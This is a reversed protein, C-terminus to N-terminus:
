STKVPLPVLTLTTKARTAAVYMLNQEQTLQWEQRAYKSPQLQEKGLWWVRGWERGKSRHITCLVPRHQPGTTDAFLQDLATLVENVTARGEMVVLLTEVKDALAAAKLEEGKAMFRATERELYAVLRKELAPVTRVKWKGVLAKLGRGIDRGEVYCGVGARIAQYALAVLPKMTRCLVADQAGLAPILKEYPLEDVTGEPNDPGPEFDPVWTQALRVVAKACRYTRTLPFRQTNFQREILELADSDAGTFGYIGQYPDGVAVLRGGPRLIKKALARRAPNTDQAEDILVWDYQWMRANHILPAYLQDDFDIRTQDTAVSLRLLNIAKTVLEDVDYQQHEPLLDELDHHQVLRYWASRDELPCLFGIAHQKAFSVLKLTFQATIPDYGLGAALDPMKNGDVVAGPAMKRWARYGLAHFTAADVKARGAVRTRIEDAIAKNFAVFAVTGGMLHAAQVLTTTKGTGARADVRANGTGHTIWDFLAQQQASPIFHTTM